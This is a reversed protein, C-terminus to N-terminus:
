HLIAKSNSYKNITEQTSKKELPQDSSLVQKVIEDIKAEFLSEPVWSPKKICQLSLTQSGEDYCWEFSFGWRGGRGSDKKISLSFIYEMVYTFEQWQKPNMSQYTLTKM